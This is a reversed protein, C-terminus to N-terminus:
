EYNEAQKLFIKVFNTVKKPNNLCKAIKNATEKSDTNMFALNVINNKIMEKVNSIISRIEICSNDFRNFCDEDDRLLIRNKLFKFSPPILVILQSKPFLKKLSLGILTNEIFYFNEKNKLKKIEKSDIGYLQNNVCYRGAFFIDKAEFRKEFYKKDLFIMRESERSDDRKQRTSVRRIRESGSILNLCEELVTDRGGGSVGLLIILNEGYGLEKQLKIASNHLKLKNFFAVNFQQILPPLLFNTDFNNRM